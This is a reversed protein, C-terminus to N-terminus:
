LAMNIYSSESFSETTDKHISHQKSLKYSSYVSLEDHSLTLRSGKHDLVMTSTYGDPEVEYEKVKVRPNFSVCKGPHQVLTGMKDILDKMRRKYSPLNPPLHVPIWYDHAMIVVKGLRDEAMFGLENYSRYDKNDAEVGVDHQVDLVSTAMETIRKPCEEKM